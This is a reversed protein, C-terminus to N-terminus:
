HLTMSCMELPKKSRLFYIWGEGMKEFGLRKFLDKIVGNRYSPVYMGRIAKFPLTKLFALMKEEVRRDFARCSLVWNLITLEDNNITYTLVSIIGYEGLRDKLKVILANPCDVKGTMNFQNARSLLQKVRMDEEPHPARIEYELNLSDLFKDMGSFKAQEKKGNMMHEYYEARKKDESTLGMVFYNGKVLEALDAVVTVEPLYMKILERERSNDDMFVCSDLGINLEKSINYIGTVKDDWSIKAIIPNIPLRGVLTPDNRSCVAIIIGEKQLMNVYDVVDSKVSVEDEGAIGDWLTNDLDLILCKKSRIAAVFRNLENM